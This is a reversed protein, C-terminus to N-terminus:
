TIAFLYDTHHNLAGTPLGLHDCIWWNLQLIRKWQHGFYANSTEIARLAATNM